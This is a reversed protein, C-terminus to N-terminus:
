LFYKKAIFPLLKREAKRLHAQYTSLSIKSFRALKELEIQRPYEYYGSKVALLFANKQKETLEPLINFFAFNELNAEKLMLLKASYGKEGIKIIEQIDKKDLSAIDWAERGDPFLIAPNIHIFRPNYFFHVYRKAEINKSHATICVFFNGKTELKVVFRKNKSSSVCQIDKFFSKVKKPEGEILGIAIFYYKGKEKYYNLPYYHMTVNNKATNIRFINEKDLIGTLRAVWM